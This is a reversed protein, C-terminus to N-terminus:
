ASPIPPAVILLPSSADRIRKPAFATKSLAPLVCILSASRSLSNSLCPLSLGETGASVTAVKGTGNDDDQELSFDDALADAAAAAIDVPRAISSRSATWAARLSRISSRVSTSRLCSPSM